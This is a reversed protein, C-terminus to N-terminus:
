YDLISTMFTHVLKEADHVSLKKRIKAIDTLHFFAIRSTNKKNQTEFSLEPDFTVGLNKIVESLAVSVGDLHLRIDAMKNRISKPSVVLIETKALSLSFM